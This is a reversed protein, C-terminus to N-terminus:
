DVRYVGPQEKKFMTKHRRFLSRLESATPTKGGTRGKGRKNLIHERITYMTVLRGRYIEEIEKILSPEHALMQKEM